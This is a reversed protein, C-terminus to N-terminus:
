RLSLIPLSLPVYRIWKQGGFTHLTSKHILMVCVHMERGLKEERKWLFTHPNKNNKKGRGSGGRKKEEEEKEESAMTLASSGM